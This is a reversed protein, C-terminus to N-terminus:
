RGIGEVMCELERIQERLEGNLKRHFAEIEQLEVVRKRLKENDQKLWLVENTM